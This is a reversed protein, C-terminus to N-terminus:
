EPSLGGCDIADVSVEYINFDIQGRHAILRVCGCGYGNDSQRVESHTLRAFADAGGDIVAGEEKRKVLGRNIQRRGIDAFFARAEVQRNRQTDEPGVAVEAIGLM